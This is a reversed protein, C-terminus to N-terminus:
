FALYAPIMVLIMVIVLMIIMPLLLRTGAEEGSKRVEDMREDFARKAEDQLISLLESNGKRLNQTLLTALKTYKQSGCRIGFREYVDAESAGLSLERSARQVEEYLYRKPAGRKRERMYGDSLKKFINRLTMGAGMYLVLQSLLQPYDSMMESSRTEMAKKLEKDKMVYSAAGGILTLFLLMLSNDRIKESWIIRGEGYNEPLTIHDKQISEEDASNLLNGIEKAIRESATLDKPVIHVPIQQQWKLEGYSYTATLNVVVGEKPIEKEKLQGDFHIVDYNDSGWSIDFPYDPIKNVLDLDSVVRDSSENDKLIINLLEESASEFLIEAEEKSFERTRVPLDFEGIENGESDTAVLTTDYEREGFENRILTAEETLHGGRSTSICMMMSLFSGAMAMMLVISIKRIFYETEAEELDKRQELTAIYLRIKGSTFSRIRNKIRMYIWLSIKLFFRSIGTEEIGPPLVLDRSLVGLVAIAAPFILYVYILNFM